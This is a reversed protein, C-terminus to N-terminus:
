LAARRSLSIHPVRTRDTNEWTYIRPMRGVSVDTSEGALPESSGDVPNHLRGGSGPLVIRLTEPAPVDGEKWIILTNRGEQGEFYFARIDPLQEVGKPLGPRFVTGPIYRGCLAYAEKGGKPSYDRNLLGFFDESDDPDRELPDFLQYWFVRAAGAAALGAITKVVQEPMNEESVRTLYSGGTPFGVETVWIKDEFRYDALIKRVNTFVAESSFANFSYPHYSLADVQEMAGSDFMGRIWEETALTNFAGGVILAGPDVERIAAAARRTLEYFEEATGTWFRSLNPENWIGWADVMDKYREVTKKVYGCYLDLQEPSLYNRSQGDGHIWGTDYALV